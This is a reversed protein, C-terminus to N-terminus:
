RHGHEANRAIRENRQMIIQAWRMRLYEMVPGVTDVNEEDLLGAYCLVLDEAAVANRHRVASATRIEQALSEIALTQRAQLATMEKFAETQQKLAETQAEIARMLVPVVNPAPTTPASFVMSTRPSPPESNSNAAGLHGFSVQKKPSEGSATSTTAHGGSTRREITTATTFNSRSDKRQPVRRGLTPSGPADYPPPPPKGNMPSLITPLCCLLTFMKKM